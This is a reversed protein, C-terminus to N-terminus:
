ITILDFGLIKLSKMDQPYWVLRPVIHYKEFDLLFDKEYLDSIQLNIFKFYIVGEKCDINDIVGIISAPDVICFEYADFSRSYWKINTLYLSNTNIRGIINRDTSLAEQFDEILIKEPIILKVKYINDPLFENKM